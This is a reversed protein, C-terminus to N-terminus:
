EKEVLDNQVKISETLKCMKCIKDRSPEGCKECYNIMSKSKELNLRKIKPYILEFNKIINEKDKTRLNDVFERVKLRYSDTLYPCKKYIVPLEKKKSYERIDNEDCYFLPKIRTVFKKDKKNKTIAGSNINLQPSGKLINILFTQVEDDLNHGTAIKNFNLRRAERNMIWKKVVGCIACNKLNKGEKTNQVEKIILGISNGFEKKLNYVHLKIQLKQSLEKVIRLYDEEIGEIGLNIYFGEINYGFKKLLYAVVSSDKGGSLAVLIKEKKNCLKYKKITEKVKKEIDQHTNM